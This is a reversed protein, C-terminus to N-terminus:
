RTESNTKMGARPEIITHLYDWDVDEPIYYAAGDEAEYLPTLELTHDSLTVGLFGQPTEYTFCFQKESDEFSYSGTFREM